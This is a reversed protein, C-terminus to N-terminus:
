HKFYIITIAASPLKPNGAEKAAGKNFVFSRLWRTHGKGESMHLFLPVSPLRIHHHAVLGMAPAPAPPLKSTGEVGVM